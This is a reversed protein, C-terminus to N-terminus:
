VGLKARPRRGAGARALAEVAAREEANLEAPVDIEVTVLLDGVGGKTKAGKGRVRMTRGSRTGAPIKVSVPSDMTPVAITAGLAAEAFTVPVTITLDQGKRGFMEHPSVRVTVYLDGPQGGNRGDGGRGKLRIRQGDEVGAPIRVNVTRPVRATGTGSCTPCPKEVRMGNGGCASCPQSFSFFGQNSDVTGRGSCSACIVPSTGPAAGTGHCSGCAGDTIVPLSTVVGDVAQQFTLAISTELDDGRRPSSRQRRAGPGGGGGFIGGFLDSIDEVRFGGAGGGAGPGPGRGMGFAGPGLRRVEDYEKRKAPDSLVAYASSIEKFREEKGPNTDPHNTKALRRYAKTIDKDTASEAVGLVKYYDKEFWDREPAM